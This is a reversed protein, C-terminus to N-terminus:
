RLACRLQSGVSGVKPSVGSLKRMISKKFNAPTSGAVRPWYSREIMVSNSRYVLRPPVLVGVEHGRATRLFSFPVPAQRFGM